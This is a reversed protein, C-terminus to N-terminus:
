PHAFIIFYQKLHKAVNDLKQGCGLEMKSLTLTLLKITIKEVM